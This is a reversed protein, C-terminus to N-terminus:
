LSMQMTLSMDRNITANLHTRRAWHFRIYLSVSERFFWYVAFLYEFVFTFRRLWYSFITEIQRNAKTAAAVSNTQIFREWTSHFLELINTKWKRAILHTGQCRRRGLRLVEFFKIQFHARQRWDIVSQFFSSSHVTGIGCIGGFNSLSDQKNLVHVWNGNILHWSKLHAM